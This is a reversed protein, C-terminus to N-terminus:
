INFNRNRVSSCGDDSCFFFLRYLKSIMSHEVIEVYVGILCFWVISRFWVWRGSFFFPGESRGTGMQKSAIRGKTKNPGVTAPHCGAPPDRDTGAFSPRSSQLRRRRQEVRGVTLNGSPPADSSALRLRRLGTYIYTITYKYIYIINM